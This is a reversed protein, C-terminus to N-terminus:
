CKGLNKKLQKREVRKYGDKQLLKRIFDVGKQKVYTSTSVISDDGSMYHKETLKFYGADVYRQYPINDDMLVNKDRLLKYLKNRGIGMDLVKAVEGMSLLSETNIVTDYFEAKPLMYRNEALLKQRAQEEEIWKKARKVPDEIMYSDMRAEIIRRELEEEMNNFAEIYKLKWELAKKGTFGMVLLSFGDRNMLYYRFNRGRYERSQELFMNKTASNEAVLNDISELVHKHQKGFHEAVSRSDTVIQENEIRVLQESNELAKINSM